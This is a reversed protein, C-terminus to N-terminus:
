DNSLQILTIFEPPKIIDELFDFVEDYTGSFQKTVRGKRTQILEFTFIRRNQLTFEVFKEKNNDKYRHWVDKLAKSFEKREKIKITYSFLAHDDNENLYFGLNFLTNSDRITDANLMLLTEFTRRVLNNRSM